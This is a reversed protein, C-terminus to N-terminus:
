LYLKGSQVQGIVLGTSELNSSNQNNPDICKSLIIAAQESIDSEVINKNSQKKSNLWERFKSGERNPEWKKQNNNEVSVTTNM